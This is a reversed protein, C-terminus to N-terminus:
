LSSSSPLAANSSSPRLSSSGYRPHRHIQGSHYMPILHSIRIVVVCVVVAVVLVVGVVDSVVDGVVLVVGVVDGDDVTEVDGLM